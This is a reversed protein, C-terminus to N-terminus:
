SKYRGALGGAGSQEFFRRQDEELREFLSPDEMGPLCIVEGLHLGALAAQVVDEPTSVIEPPFRKPDMGQRIHFETLVVAPCLAQVKVGTGEVERSLIQTFTNIFAKTGAYTATPAMRPINVPGSFALRSSVNIIAGKHRALMGPLAARTLRTVALVQVKIVEEAKDPDLQIFPMHDAFGANNVLMELSELSALRKELALLDASRALDAVLVEVHVGPDARLRGALEELRDRRRAVITLDYGDRALREAFAKGIGSSAGTVVAHPRSASKSTL